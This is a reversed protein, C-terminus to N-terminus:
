FNKLILNALKKINIEQGSGINIISYKKNKKMAIISAEALDDM